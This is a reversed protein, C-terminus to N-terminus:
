FCYELNRFSLASCCLGDVDGLLSLTMTGERKKNNWLRKLAGLRRYPLQWRERRAGLALAQDLLREAM